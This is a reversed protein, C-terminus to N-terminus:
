IFANGVIIRILALSFFGIGYLPSTLNLGINSNKFTYESTKTAPPPDEDPEAALLSHSKSDTGSIFMNEDPSIHKFTSPVSQTIINLM